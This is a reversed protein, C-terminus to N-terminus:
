KWTLHKAIDPWGIANDSRARLQNIRERNWYEPDVVAKVACQFDVSQGQLFKHCDRCLRLWCCREEISQESKARTVIEHVECKRDAGCFQCCGKRYEDREGSQKLKLRQERHKKSERKIRTYTRLRTYRPLYGGRKM